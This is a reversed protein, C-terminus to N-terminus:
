DLFSALFYSGWSICIIVKPDTKPPRPIGRPVGKGCLKWGSFLLFFVRGYGVSGGPGPVMPSGGRGPWGLEM